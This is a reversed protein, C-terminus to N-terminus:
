EGTNKSTPKFIFKVPDFRIEMPPRPPLSRAPPFSLSKLNEDEGKGAADIAMAFDYDAITAYSGAGHEGSKSVKGDHIVTVVTSFEALREVFTQFGRLGQATNEDESPLLLKYRPDLIVLDANYTDRLLNYWHKRVEEGHGRLNLIELRDDTASSDGLDALHFNKGMMAARWRMDDATVEMNLYIARRPRPVKMGLFDRGTAVCEALQLALWTKKAKAKGFIVGKRKEGVLGEVIWAPAKAESEADEYLDCIYMGVARDTDSLHEYILEDDVPCYRCDGCDGADSCTGYRPCEKWLERRIGNLRKEKQLREAEDAKADFKVEDAAPATATKTQESM